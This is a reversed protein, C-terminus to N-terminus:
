VRGSRAADRDRIAVEQSGCSPIDVARKSRVSVVLAWPTQRWMSPYPQVRSKVRTQKAPHGRAIRAALQLAEDRCSSPHRSSSANDWEEHSRHKQWLGRCSQQARLLQERLCHVAEETSCVVGLLCIQSGRERHLRRSKSGTKYPGTDGHGRYGREV